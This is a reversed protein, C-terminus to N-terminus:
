PNIRVEVRSSRKERVVVFGTVNRGWRRFFNLFGSKWSARLILHGASESTTFSFAPDKGMLANLIEARQADALGPISGASVAQHWPALDGTGQLPRLGKCYNCFNGKGGSICHPCYPM